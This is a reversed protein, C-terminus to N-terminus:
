RNTGNARPTGLRLARKFSEEFRLQQGSGPFPIRENVVPLSADRLDWYAADYVSAKILIIKKPLLRKCRRVLAPVFDRLPSGDVPDPQRLDILFVGRDRLKSLLDRKNARTPETRLIGRAVYRFLSDHEGVKEFYSYRDTAAPPSEAM